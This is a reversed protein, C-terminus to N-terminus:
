ENIVWARQKVSSEIAEIMKLIQQGENFSCLRNSGKLIAEHQKQYTYDRDIVDGAIINGNCNISNQMFDVRITRNNTQVTMYRQFIRDLYNLELSVKISRNTEFIVQCYDESQIDLDSIKGSNSILFKWEGFLYSLYDLEHSLDRIVGGGKESFASYSQRYDKHPRWTPLYQGVYANVSIVKEDELLNLLKSILPHFRLNYAVYVNNHDIHIMENKEFLPKEILIKGQYGHAKLQKLLPLHESTENAIVIYDFNSNAIADTISRYFHNRENAHRSVVSVSLKMRELVQVHRKGISGYGIVLVEM